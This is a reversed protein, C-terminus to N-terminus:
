VELEGNNFKEIAKERTEAHIRGIYNGDNLVRCSVGAPLGDMEPYEFDLVLSRFLRRAIVENKAHDM